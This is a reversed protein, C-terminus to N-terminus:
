ATVAGLLPAILLDAMENGLEAPTLPGAPNFWKYTWNVAGLCTNVYVTVSTKLETGSQDLYDAVVSQLIREFGGRREFMKRSLRKPLEGEEEFFIKLLELNECTYTVRSVLLKRFAELPDPTEDVVAQAAAVGEALVNEYLRVLIEEKSKFYHYLSPKGLGVEAAIDNMTTGRYGQRSFIETSAELVAMRRVEAKPTLEGVM